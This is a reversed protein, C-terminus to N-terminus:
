SGAMAGQKGIMTEGSSPLMVSGLLRWTRAEDEVLILWHGSAPLQLSGVFQEGDRKLIRVQDIGARTPHSLTVKLGEPLAWGSDTAELRLVIADNTLRLGAMIGLDEARKSRALTESAALGQKYYDEAVLGDRTSVALWATYIGAVIVIAPGAMLIWPWPERFWQKPKRPNISATSIMQQGLNRCSSHPKKM